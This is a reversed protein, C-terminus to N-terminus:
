YGLEGTLFGSVRQRAELVSTSSSKSLHARQQTLHYDRSQKGGVATDYTLAAIAPPHHSSLPLLLTLLGPLPELLLLECTLM